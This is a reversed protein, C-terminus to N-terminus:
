RIANNDYFNGRELIKEVTKNIDSNNELKLVYRTNTPEDYPLDIGTVNKSNSYLGKQNRRKLEDMSVDLFVLLPNDFNTYIYEHIEKYLSMTSCIVNMDQDYLYKCFKVIRYANKIRDELNHGLDNGTIDRIMDGDIVITNPLNRKINQYLIKSVSSKGAGSLGTIWILKNSKTM